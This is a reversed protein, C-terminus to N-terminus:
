AKKNLIGMALTKSYCSKKNKLGSHDFIMNHVLRFSSNMIDMWKLGNSIKFDSRFHFSNKNSKPAADLLLIENWDSFWM